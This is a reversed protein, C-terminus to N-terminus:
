AVTEQMPLPVVQAGLDSRLASIIERSIGGLPARDTRHGWVRIAQYVSSERYGHGIAWQRATTGQARLAALITYDAPQRVTTRPRGHPKFEAQHAVRKM